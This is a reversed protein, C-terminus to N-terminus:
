KQVKYGGGDGGGEGGGGEGDGGGGDGGGGEGGGGKEGIVKGGLPTQTRLPSLFSPEPAHTVSSVCVRSGIPSSGIAACHQVVSPAHLRLAEPL